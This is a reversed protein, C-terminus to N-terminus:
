PRQAMLQPYLDDTGEVRSLDLQLGPSSAIFPQDQGGGVGGHLGRSRGESFDLQGDKHNAGFVMLDGVGDRQALDDIQRALLDPDAGFPALPNDGEVRAQGRVVSVKGGKGEIVTAEDSRTVVFAIGPHDRLGERLRDPVQETGALYLHAGSGFDQATIKTTPALSQALSQLSQGYLDHFHYSFVQGHDSLVVVHYPREARDVAEFLVELNRDVWKLSKFAKEGPGFPHALGDFNAFDVYLVEEGEEIQRAMAYAAGDSLFTEKSADQFITAYSRDTEKRHLLDHAVTGAFHVAAQLSRIPHTILHRSLHLYDKFVSGALEGKQHAEAMESLTFYNEEAGGGLASLYATGGSLLGTKGQALMRDVEDADELSMSDVKEGTSEEYWQNGPLMEGYFLGGASVTTQTPLGNRYSDLQLLGSDVREELHPM